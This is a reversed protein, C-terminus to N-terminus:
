KILGEELDMQRCISRIMETGAIYGVEEIGRIHATRGIALCINMVKACYNEMLRYYTKM